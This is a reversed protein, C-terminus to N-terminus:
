FPVESTDPGALWEVYWQRMNDMWTQSPFAKGEYPADLQKLGELFVQWGQWCNINVRGQEIHPLCKECTSVHTYYAAICAKM